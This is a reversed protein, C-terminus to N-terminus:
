TEAIGGVLPIGAYASGIHGAVIPPRAFAVARMARHICMITAEIDYEAMPHADLVHEHV